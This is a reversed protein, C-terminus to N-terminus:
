AAKHPTISAPTTTPANEGLEVVAALRETAGTSGRPHPDDSVFLLALSSVVFLVTTSIATVLATTNILDLLFSVLNESTNPM